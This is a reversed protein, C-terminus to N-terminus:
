TKILTALARAEVELPNRKYGYLATCAGYILLFGPITYRRWQEVHAREHAMLGLNIAQPEVLIHRGFTMSRVRFWRPIRSERFRHAFLRLDLEALIWLWVILAIWWM